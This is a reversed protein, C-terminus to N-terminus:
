LKKHRPALIRVNQREFADTLCKQLYSSSGFGGTLIIARVRHGESKQMISKLKNVVDVIVEDFFSRMQEPTVDIKQFNQRANRGGLVVFDYNPKDDRFELKKKEFGTNVRAKLDAISFGLKNALASIDAAAELARMFAKNIYDSGCLAGDPADMTKLRVNEGETEDSLFRYRVFDGTGAGLDAIAIEDGPKFWSTIRPDHLPKLQEALVQVAACLPEYVLECQEAGAAEAAVSMVRNAAADWMQPVSLFLKMPMENLDHSYGHNDEMAIKAESIMHRLICVVLDHKTKGLAGLQADVQRKIDQTMPDAFIALKADRIVLDEALEERLLRNELERGFIFEGDVWTAANPLKTENNGFDIDNPEQYFSEDAYSIQWSGALKSTGFDVCIRKCFSEQGTAVSYSSKKVCSPRDSDQQLHQGSALM